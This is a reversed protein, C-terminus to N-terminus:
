IEFSQTPPLEASRTLLVKIDNLRDRLQQEKDKAAAPSAAWITLHPEDLLTKLRITQDYRALRDDLKRGAYGFYLDVIAGGFMMIGALDGLQRTFVSLFGLIIGGIWTLRAILRAIPLGWYSVSDVPPTAPPISFNTSYLDRVKIIAKEEESFLVTCDVYQHKTASSIIGAEERHEITVRM